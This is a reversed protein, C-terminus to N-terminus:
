KEAQHTANRGAVRVKQGDKLTKKAKEYEEMTAFDVRGEGLREQLAKPVKYTAQFDKISEEVSALGIELKQRAREATDGPQAVVGYNRLAEGGTVAKGSTDLYYKNRVSRVKLLFSQLEPPLKKALLQDFVKSEETLFAYARNDDIQKILVPNQLDDILSSMDGQLKRTDRLTRAEVAGMKQRDDDEKQGSKLQQRLDLMQMQFNESRAIDSLRDQRRERDRREQDERRYQDRIARERNETEVRIQAAQAIAQKEQSSYWEKELTAKYADEKKQLADLVTELRKKNSRLQELTAVLGYKDINTNIFAADREIAAIKAKRTASDIDNKSQAIEYEFAKELSDLTSRLAKQNTEFIQRQEKAYQDRGKSYGDAMGNMAALAAKATNKNNGGLLFGAAGIVSFVAALTQANQQDPNFTSKEAIEKSKEQITKYAPSDYLSKELIGRADDVERLAKAESEAKSKAQEAQFKGQDALNTIIQADINATETAIRAREREIGPRPDAPREISPFGMQKPAPAPTPAGLGALPKNLQETFFLEAM